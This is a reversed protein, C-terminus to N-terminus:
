FLFFCSSCGRKIIKTQFVLDRSAFDCFVPFDIPNTPPDAVEPLPPCDEIKDFRYEKLAGEQSFHMLCRFLDWHPRHVMSEFDDLSSKKAGALDEATTPKSGAAPAMSSKPRLAAVQAPLQGVFAYKFTSSSFGAQMSVGKRTMKAQHGARSNGALNQFYTMPVESYGGRRYIDEIAAYTTKWGVDPDAQRGYYSFIGQIQQDFGEDSFCFTWPLENQPVDHQKAFDVILQQSSLYNTACADIATIRQYRERLSM